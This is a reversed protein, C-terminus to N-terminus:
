YKLFSNGRNCVSHPKAYDENFQYAWTGDSRKTEVLKLPGDAKGLPDYAVLKPTLTKTTLAWFGATLLVSLFFGILIGAWFEM